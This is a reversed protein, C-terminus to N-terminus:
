DRSEFVYPGAGAKLPGDSAQSLPPPRVPHSLSSVVLWRLWRALYGARSWRWNPADKVTHLTAINLVKLFLKMFVMPDEEMGALISMTAQRDSADRRWLDYISSSMMRAGESDGRFFEYLSVSLLGPVHCRRIREQQYADFDQSRALYEGDMFGLTLGIATLPHFFGVADGVLALGRVGYCARPRFQNPAWAVGDGELARRLAPRLAPFLAPSYAEWLYRNREELRFADIPVDLCARVRRPGVRYAFVPGPGGLFLHGFGEFPLEVDELLVGAMYSLLTCQNSLGMKKRVSSFRGDAGVVTDAAASVISGDKKKFTLRQGDAEVPRAFPVYDILPHAAAVERLACVLTHHDCSMGSSGHPYELFVPTDGDHPFVVFGRTNPVESAALSARVGLDELVKVAPPHLWEGALRRAAHPLAELLVVRAGQRAFALATVCGVPGAGIVAIDIIRSTM